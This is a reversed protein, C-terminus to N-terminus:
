RMYQDFNFEERNIIFCYDISKLNFFLCVNDQGNRLVSLFLTLDTFSNQKRGEKKAGRLHVSLSSVTMEFVKHNTRLVQFIQRKLTFNGERKSLLVIYVSHQCSFCVESYIKKM